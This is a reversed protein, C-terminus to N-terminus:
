NVAMLDSDFYRDSLKKRTKAIGKIIVQREMTHWFSLCINPNQDIAKGKESNYNTYFVFGEEDFNKLLVERAKSFWRVL